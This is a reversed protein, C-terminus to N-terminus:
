TALHRAPRSKAPRHNEDRHLAVGLLVGDDLSEDGDNIALALFLRLRVLKRFALEFVQAIQHDAIVHRNANTGTVVFNLDDARRSLLSDEFCENIQNTRVVHVHVIETRVAVNLAGNFERIGVPAFFVRSSSKLKLLRQGLGIPSLLVQVFVFILLVRM